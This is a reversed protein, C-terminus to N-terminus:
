RKGPEKLSGYLEDIEARKQGATMAGDVLLGKGQKLDCLHTCAHRKSACISSIDLVSDQSAVVVLAGYTPALLIDGDIGDAGEALPIMSSSIDIRLGCHEAVELLAGKLGGESVDHMLKVGGCGQLSLATELPTFGRWRGDHKGESLGKLWVAEGGVEGVLLVADGESVRGPRRVEEGLCTATVLPIDLGRYTATQGAVVRVRHRKAEGGLGKAIKRLDAERSGLPMYIGTVMHTPRGFRCAVNTAAYHFAFFGLAELPVGISPSHAVVTRGSLTITNGDLGPEDAPMFPYVSRDFVERSVKGLGLVGSVLFGRCINKRRRIVL